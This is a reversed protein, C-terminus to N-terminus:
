VTVNLTRPFITGINEPIFTIRYNNGGNGDNISGTPVLILNTGTNKSAYAESFTGIDGDVLSGVTIVPMAASSITGDYIKSDSSATISIARPTIAATAPANGSTLSYDGADAGSLTIGTVAVDKGAGANRDAFEADSYSETFVDGAIRDDSLN